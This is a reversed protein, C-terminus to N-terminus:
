ITMIKNIDIFINSAHPVKWGEIYKKLMLMMMLYEFSVNQFSQMYCYLIQSMLM